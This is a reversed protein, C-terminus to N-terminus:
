DIWYGAILTTRSHLHCIIFQFVIVTRVVLGAIRTGWRLKLIFETNSSDPINEM